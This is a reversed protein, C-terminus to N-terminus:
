TLSKDEIKRVTQRVINELLQIQLEDPFGQMIMKKFSKYANVKPADLEFGLLKLWKKTEVAPFPRGQKPVFECNSTSIESLKNQYIFLTLLVAQSINLSAFEGFTPLRSVLHCSEIDEQALGHDEPGFVFLPTRQKTGSDSQIREIADQLLHSKRNKGMRASMAIIVYDGYELCDDINAVQIRNDLYVQAGAAGEYSELNVECQSDVLFLKDGGMNALARACAGINRSYKTKVLAINM